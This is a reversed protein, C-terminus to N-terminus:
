TVLVVTVGGNVYSDIIERDKNRCQFMALESSLGGLGVENQM